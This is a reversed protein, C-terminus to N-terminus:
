AEQFHFMAGISKKKHEGRLRLIFSEETLKSQTLPWFFKM